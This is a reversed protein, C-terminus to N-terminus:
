GKTNIIFLRVQLRTPTRSHPKARSVKPTEPARWNKCMMLVSDRLSCLPVAVWGSGCAGAAAGAVRVV